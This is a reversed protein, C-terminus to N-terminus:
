HQFYKKMSIIYGLHLAEHTNNFIIADEINKLEFGYSTAYIEFNGFKGNAFDQELTDMNTELAKLIIEWENIDVKFNAVSGKKYKDIFADDFLMTQKTLKYHLIQQTVLIHGVNWAIHNKFNSPIFNIEELSLSDISKLILSRTARLLRFQTEM